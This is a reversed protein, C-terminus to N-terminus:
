DGDRGQDVVGGLQAIQRDIQGARIYFYIGGAAMGLCFLISVVTIM